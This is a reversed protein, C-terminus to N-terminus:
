RVNMVKKERFYNLCFFMLAPFFVAALLGTKLDDGAAASVFGVLWPGFSCGIDGAFALLAYMATGGKSLSKGALSFTGPWMVGVSYGCIGCGLLSLAPWPSLCALLYGSVCLLASFRMYRNLDVKSSISAHVIRSIGMLVAFFCPGALDGATKSIHLATEAFASAWQSMSLEACGACIMLIVLMRFTTNGFLERGSMGNGEEAQTRIPVMRFFFVNFLPILAWICAITRWSSLGFIRFLLVSGAITLVSGWCYFSHLLSMASAKDDAPCGDLVPSILTEIIGGGVAYLMVAICLGAFPPLVEPLVGLLVLGAAAFVHASVLMNRYGIRDAYKASFLDTCIQTVFNVSVLLGLSKLSLGWINRFTVFLLPAYNNVVAQTIYGIYCAYVTSKFSKMIGLIASFFPNGAPIRM